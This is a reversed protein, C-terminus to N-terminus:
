FYFLLIFFFSLTLLQSLLISILLKSPVRQFKAQDFGVEEFLHVLAKM